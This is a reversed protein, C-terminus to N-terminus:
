NQQNRVPNLSLSKRISFSSEPKMCAPFKKAPQSDIKWQGRAM